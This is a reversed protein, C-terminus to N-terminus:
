GGTMQHTIVATIVSKAVDLGQSGLFKGFARVRSAEEPATHDLSEAQSELARLFVDVLDDSLRPWAGVAELGLPTLGRIMYDVYPAGHYNLNQAKIYGAEVLRGVAKAVRPMDKPERKM